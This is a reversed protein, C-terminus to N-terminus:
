NQLITIAERYHDVAEQYDQLKYSVSGLDYHVNVLNEHFIKETRQLDMLRILARKFQVKAQLYESELM